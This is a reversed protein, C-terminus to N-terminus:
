LASRNSHRRAANLLADCNRGKGTVELSSLRHCSGWQSTTDTYWTEHCQYCVAIVCRLLSVRAIIDGAMTIDVGEYVEDARETACLLM